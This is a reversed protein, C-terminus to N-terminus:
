RGKRGPLIADKAPVQRDPRPARFAEDRLRAELFRLAAALNGEARRSLLEGFEDFRYGRVALVYGRAAAGFLDRALALVAEPTVSHSSFGVARRPEVPRFSFPEPGSLAADAFVVVDCGAVDAADEITLQYDSEVRLGPIGRAALAEALAPGLGDDQRGPNGYGIVLARGASDSM